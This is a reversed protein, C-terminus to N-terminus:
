RKPHQFVKALDVTDGKKQFDKKGADIMYFSMKNSATDIVAVGARSGAVQITCAKFFGAADSASGAYAANTLLGSIDTPREAGARVVCLSVVVALLVVNLVVVSSLIFDKTKM